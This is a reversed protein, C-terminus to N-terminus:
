ISISLIMGNVSHNKLEIKLALKEHSRQLSIDLALNHKRTNSSQWKKAMDSELNASLIRNFNTINNQQSSFMKLSICVM